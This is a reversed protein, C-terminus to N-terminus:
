TCLRRQTSPDRYSPSLYLPLTVPPKPPCDGLSHTHGSSAVRRNLVARRFLLPLRGARKFTSHASGAFQWAKKKSRGHLWEGNGGGRKAVRTKVAESASAESDPQRTGRVSWFFILKREGKEENQRRKRSLIPPPPVAM